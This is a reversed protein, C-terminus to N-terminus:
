WRRAAGVEDGAPKLARINGLPEHHVCLPAPEDEHGEGGSAADALGLDSGLELTVVSGITLGVRSLGAAGQRIGCGRCTHASMVPLETEVGHLTVEANARHTSLCLGHRGVGLAVERVGSGLPIVVRHLDGLLVCMSSYAKGMWSVPRVSRPTSMTSSPSFHSASFVSAAEAQM